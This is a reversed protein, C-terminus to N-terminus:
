LEQILGSWIREPAGTEKTLILEGHEGVGEAIGRVVTGDGLTISVTKGITELRSRWEQLPNWGSRLEFYLEDLNTLLDALLDGRSAPKGIEESVSTAIRRVEEPMESTDINVNLGVGVVAFDIGSRGTSTETLVGFIKRGRVTLDNPWKIGAEIGIENLTRVAALSTIMTIRAAFELPTQFRALWSFLLCCGKPAIWKRGGRGRGAHQYDAVVVTGDEAGQLALSHLDEQTSSTEEKYFVHKGVIKTSELDSPPWSLTKM